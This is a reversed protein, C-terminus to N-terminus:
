RYVCRGRSVPLIGADHTWEAPEGLLVRRHTSNAWRGQIWIRAESQRHIFAGGQNEVCLLIYTVRLSLTM